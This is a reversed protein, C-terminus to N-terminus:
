VGTQPLAETQIRKREREAQFVEEYFGKWMKGVHERSYFKHGTFALGASERYFLPDEKLKQLIRIFEEQDKGRLVYDFLIPQYIELNRVLIPLGCNMAELITMPFLEEYSPLFMVDAMNYIQNMENRDVLGLFKVNDPLSEMRAKIEEYGESIKGFSFGGAWVFQCEPMREAVELFDFVGKRKQRQGACFITFAEPQIGYKRRTKQKEEKGLPYFNKESVVNPIYTVKERPIGYDQLKDIFAPNVTVLYDMKRYFSIMYRYFVNKAFRPLSISNEVTEPLFHVYGVLAGQRRRWFASLYFEPNISHYHTIESAERSNELILASDKMMEKVLEVQEDHASLVGQGKVMDAKSLMNIRKM